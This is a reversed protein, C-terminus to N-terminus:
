AAVEREVSLVRSLQTLEDMFRKLHRDDQIKVSVTLTVSVPHEGDKHVFVSEYAPAYGITDTQDAYALYSSATAIATDKHYRNLVEVTIDFTERPM